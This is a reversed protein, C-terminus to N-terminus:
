FVGHIQFNFTWKSVHTYRNILLWLLFFWFINAVSYFYFSFKDSHTAHMPSGQHSLSFSDAQWHLLSPDWGKTPFIGPSPFPLWKQIGTQLIGHVSSGPPLQEICSFVTHFRSGMEQQQQQERLNVLTILLETHSAMGWDQWDAPTGLPFRGSFSPEGLARWREQRTGGVSEYPRTRAVMESCGYRWAFYREWSELNSEILM